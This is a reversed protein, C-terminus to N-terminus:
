VDPEIELADRLTEAVQRPPRRATKALTLAVPTAWDGHEPERPVEVDIRSGEPLHLGAREIARELREALHSEIPWPKEAPM